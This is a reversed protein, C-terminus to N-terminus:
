RKSDGYSIMPHSPNTMSTINCFHDLNNRVLVHCVEHQETSIIEDILRDKTWVCYYGGYQNNFGAANDWQSSNFLYNEYVTTITNNCQDEIHIANCTTNMKVGMSNFFLGILFALCVFVILDIPKIERAM